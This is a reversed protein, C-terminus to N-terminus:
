RTQAKALEAEFDNRANAVITKLEGPHIFADADGARKRADRGMVDNLEPHFPLVVDAQVTDLRAFSKRFDRVIGPYGKNGILKSGATTISCLFVVKVPKGRDIATM